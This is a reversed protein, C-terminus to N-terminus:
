VEDLREWPIPDRGLGQGQYRMHDMIVHLYSLRYPIRLKGGDAASSWILFCGVDGARIEKM